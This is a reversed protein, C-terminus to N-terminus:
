SSHIIVSLLVYKLSSSIVIAIKLNGMDHCGGQTTIAMDFVLQGMFDIKWDAIFDRLNLSKGLFNFQSMKFFHLMKVNVVLFLPLM